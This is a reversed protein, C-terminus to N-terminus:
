EDCDNVITNLKSYECESNLIKGRKRRRSILMAIGITLIAFIVVLSIVLLATAGPEAKRVSLTTDQVTMPDDIRHISILHM